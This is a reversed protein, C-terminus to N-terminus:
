KVRPYHVKGVTFSKEFRKMLKPAYEICVFLCDIIEEKYNTYIHYMKCVSSREVYKAEALMIVTKARDM